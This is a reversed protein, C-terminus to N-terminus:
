RVELDTQAQCPGSQMIAVRFLGASELAVLHDCVSM